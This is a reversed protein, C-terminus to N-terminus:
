RRSILGVTKSKPTTFSVPCPITLRFPTEPKQQFNLRTPSLSLGKMPIEHATIANCTRNILFYHRINNKINEHSILKRVDVADFVRYSFRFSKLGKKINSTHIKSTSIYLIFIM